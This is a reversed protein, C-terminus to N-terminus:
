PKITHAKIEKRRENRTLRERESAVGTHTYVRENPGLFIARNIERRTAHHANKAKARSESDLDIQGGMRKKQWIM